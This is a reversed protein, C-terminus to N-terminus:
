MQYPDVRTWDHPYISRVQPKRNKTSASKSIKKSRRGEQRASPPGPSKSRSRSRSRSDSHRRGRNRRSYSEGKSEDSSERPTESDTGPEMESPIKKEEQQTQQTRAATAEYDKRDEPIDEVDSDDKDSVDYRSRVSQPSPISNGFSNLDVDEEDENGDEEDDDQIFQGDATVKPASPDQSHGRVLWAAHYTAPGAGEPPDERAPAECAVNSFNFLAGGGGAGGGRDSSNIAAAGRKQQRNGRSKRTSLSEVDYTQPSLASVEGAVSAAQIERIRAGVPTHSGHHRGGHPTRLRRHHGQHVGSKSRRRHEDYYYDEHNDEDSNSFTARGDKSLYRDNESSSQRSAARIKVCYRISVVVAVSIAVASSVIITVFFGNTPDGSVIGGVLAGAFIAVFLLSAVVILVTTFKSSTSDEGNPLM